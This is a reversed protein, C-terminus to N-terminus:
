RCMKSSVKREPSSTLCRSAYRKPRRAGMRTLVEVLDEVFRKRWKTPWEKECFDLISGVSREDISEIGWWREDIQAEVANGNWRLASFPSLTPHRDQAPAAMLVVALTLSCSAVHRQPRM